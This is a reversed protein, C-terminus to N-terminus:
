LSSASSTPFTDQAVPEMNSHESPLSDKTREELLRVDSWATSDALADVAVDHLQGPEITAGSSQGASAASADGQRAAAEQAEAQRVMAAILDSASTRGPPSSPEDVSQQADLEVDPGGGRGEQTEQELLDPEAGDAVRADQAPEGISHLPVQLARQASEVGSAAAADDVAASVGLRQSTRAADSEALLTASPPSAGATQDPQPQAQDHLTAAEAAAAAHDDDGYQQAATTAAGTGDAVASATIAIHVQASSLPEAGDFGDRSQPQAAEAGGANAAPEPRRATEQLGDALEPSSTHKQASEQHADASASAAADPEPLLSQSPM